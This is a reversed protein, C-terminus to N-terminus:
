EDEDDVELEEEEEEEEEVTASASALKAESHPDSFDVETIGQLDRSPCNNCIFTVKVGQLWNPVAEIEKGCVCKVM